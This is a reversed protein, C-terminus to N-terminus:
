VPKQRLGFTFLISIFASSNLELISTLRDEFTGMAKVEALKQHLGSTFLISICVYSNLEPISASKDEVTGLATVVEAPNQHLGFTFLTPSLEAFIAFNKLNARRGRIEM